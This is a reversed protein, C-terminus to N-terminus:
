GRSRRDKGGEEVCQDSVAAERVCVGSAREEVGHLRETSLGLGAGENASEHLSDGFLLGVMAELYTAAM